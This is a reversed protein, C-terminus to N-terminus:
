YPIEDALYQCNRWGPQGKFIGDSASDQKEKESKKRKKKQVEVAPLLLRCSHIRDSSLLAPEIMLRRM